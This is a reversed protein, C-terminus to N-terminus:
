DAKSGKRYARQAEAFADLRADVRAFVSGEPFAGNEDRAAGAPLGTLLTLAEELHSVAYIQFRGAGVAEVVREDLMLHRVNSTPILVGQTGTLGRAACIDFFGEIKENVGGIAQIRGQQDVSGTMALDQRLPVEGLASLLTVLEAASASDGDVGGYSQEFVLTASAALPRRQGFQAGLYASLILVGKSHLPGGLHVEREIDMVEGGGLRVQASIRNPRGFAFQGISLVSLGNMQGVAEGSTEIRLTGETIQENLRDRLRDLRHEREALAQRVADANVTAGKAWYDAEVMLDTLAQTRLSLRDAASCLRTSVECLTAVAGADFPRLKAEQALGALMAGYDSLPVADRPLEDEFDAFVKFIDGFEPDLASLQEYLLRDGFLVVKVQLPIAEPELSVTSPMGYHQALPELELRECRLARKLGDYALPKQLLRRLDLLLYGGNAQHLAGPRILHLDTVLSGMEARQEVQGLLREYSPNEEYHVPAGADPAHSVLLNAGYRRRLPNAEGAGEQGKGVWSLIEGAMSIMDARMADLHAPVEPIAEWASRLGDILGSVAFTATRKNLTRLAEQSQKMWGPIEKLITQLRDKLDGVAQDLATREGEPLAALAAPSLVTGEKLPAFSFGQPTRLLAVGKGQAERELARFSNEQREKFTEEILQRRSQYAEGEFTSVLAQQLDDVLQSLQARFDAGRGPPLCIANPCRPNAFNYVYCWDGPTPGRAAALALMEQAAREVPVGNEAAAFVHYGPRKLAVALAFADRWRGEPPFLAPATVADSHEFGLAEPACSWRLQPVKLPEPGDM